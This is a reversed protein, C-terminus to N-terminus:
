AVDAFSKRWGVIEASEWPSLVYGAQSPSAIEGTVANVGDVSLVILVREGTLNALRVAYRHGPEGPIWTLGHHRYEPLWRGSDRDVVDIDVLTGAQLPLSAAPLLATTILFKYLVQKRLM